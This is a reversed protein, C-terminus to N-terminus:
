LLLYKKTGKCGFFAPRDAAGPIGTLFTRVPCPAQSHFACFPAIKETRLLSRGGALALTFVRPLLGRRRAAVYPPYPPLGALGFRGASSPPGASAPPYTAYIFPLNLFLFRSVAGGKKEFAGERKFFFDSQGPVQNGPGKADSRELTGGGSKDHFLNESFSAGPTGEEASGTANVGTKRRLHGKKLVVQFLRISRPGSEWSGRENRRESRSTKDNSM